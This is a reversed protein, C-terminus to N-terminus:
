VVKSRAWLLEFQAQYATSMELSNKVAFRDESHKTSSSESFNASGSFVDDGVVGFKEHMTKATQIRVDIPLGQAKLGKITLAISETFDENLVVRVTVGRRAAAELAKYEPAGASMGYMAVSIATGPKARNFLDTAALTVSAPAPSIVGNAGMVTSSRDGGAGYGTDGVPAGFTRSNFFGEVDVATLFRGTSAIKAATLGQVKSLEDGSEFDGSAERHAVIARAQTLTFGTAKLEDVSANNISVQASGFTVAAALQALKAAPLKAVSPLRTKLEDLSAFRGYRTRDGQIASALTKGVIASLREKDAPRFGNVDFSRTDNALAYPAYADDPKPTSPTVRGGHALVMADWQQKKFNAFNNPSLCAASNNFFAAFEDGYQEVPRRSSADVAHFINMDEYNKTDATDSWNFSGTVLRDPMGDIFTAFGKHHNLGQTAGHNYVPRNLSSSWVYPYDKKFKVEINPLKQSLIAPLANGGTTSYQGSDAVIRFKVNPNAKAIDVVAKEIADSQFEFIMMNVDLPRGAARAVSDNLEGVLKQTLSEQFTFHTSVWDINSLSAMSKITGSALELGVGLQQATMVGTTAGAAQDFADVVAKVENVSLYRNGNQGAAAILAAKVKDVDGGSARALARDVLAKASSEVKLQSFLIPSM